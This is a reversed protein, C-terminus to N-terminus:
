SQVCVLRSGMELRYPQILDTPSLVGYLGSLLRVSGAGFTWDEESFTAADMGRYAPGDYALAQPSGFLFFHETMATLLKSTTPGIHARPLLFDSPCPYM